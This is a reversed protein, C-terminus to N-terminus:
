LTLAVIPVWVNNCAMPMKISHISDYGLKKIFMNVNTDRVGAMNWKQQEPDPSSLQLRRRRVDM